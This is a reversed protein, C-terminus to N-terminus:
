WEQWWQKVPGYFYSGSWCINGVFHGRTVIYLAHMCSRVCFLLSLLIENVQILSRASYNHDDIKCYCYYVEAQKIFLVNASKRDIVQILMFLFVSILILSLSFFLNSRSHFQYCIIQAGWWLLSVLHAQKTFHQTYGVQDLSYFFIM